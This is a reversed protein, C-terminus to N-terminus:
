SGMNNTGSGAEETVLDNKAHTSPYKAWTRAKRMELNTLADSAVLKDRMTTSVAASKIQLYM